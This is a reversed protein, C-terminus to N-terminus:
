RAVDSRDAASARISLDGLVVLVKLHLEPATDPLDAVGTVKVDGLIEPGSVTVRWGNPVVLEADGFVTTVPMTVRGELTAATLDIEVDGFVTTVAQGGYPGSPVRIAQDGFVTVIEKGTHSLVTPSGPRPQRALVWAGIGILALPLLVGVLDVVGQTWLLLVGGVGVLFGAGALNRPRTVVQAVGALVVVLPWWGRLWVWADVLDARDLLLVTGLTVFSVGMVFSSRSM